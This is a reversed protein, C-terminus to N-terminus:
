HTHTRQSSSLTHHITQHWNKKPHRSNKPPHEIKQHRNSDKKSSKKISAQKQIQNPNKRKQINKQFGKPNQHKKM